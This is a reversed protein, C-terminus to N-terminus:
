PLEARERSAIVEESGKSLVKLRAILTVDVNKAGLARAIREIQSRGDAVSKRV